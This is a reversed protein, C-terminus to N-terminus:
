PTDPEGWYIVFSALQYLTKAVPYSDLERSAILGFNLSDKEIQDPCRGGRTWVHLAELQRKVSAIAGDGTEALSMADLETRAVALLRDFEDFSKLSGPM